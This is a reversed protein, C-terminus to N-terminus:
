PAPDRASNNSPLLRARVEAREADVQELTAGLRVLIQETMALALEGEDAFVATAGAKLYAERQNLYAVRVLIELDPHIELAGRVIELGNETASSSLILTEAGGVQAQILTEEHSADGCVARLGTAKIRSLLAQNMEIVTVEIENKVLLAALTQGVPGFGVLIARSARESPGGAVPVQSDPEPRIKGNKKVRRRNSIRANWATLPAVLHFLFRNLTMSLISVTVITHLVGDSLVELEQGLSALLFSFEGIQAMAVAVNLSVRFSQGRWRLSWFTIFPTVIMVVILTAGILFPHQIAFWPDLLTGVSVFFLVAFADRMPMAESAARVSFDSRSIAMGALLAGLALSVGFGKAALVAICIAAVLVALTFLERSRTKAVQRLVGPIVRGGVIVIGAILCAVKLSTWCLIALIQGVGPPDGQLFSSALVMEVVAVIDQLVLWGIALHGTLTHLLDTDSLVRTLVVTSAFSIALGFLLSEKWEWGFMMGGAFGAGSTMAMQILAGPLVSRQVQILEGLDFKLGVGFMLLIVGIEALQSGLEPDAVFGPTYPGVVVGALLYGVIPSIGARYALYGFILAALLGGALTTLLAVDHM